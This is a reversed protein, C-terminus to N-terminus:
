NKAALSPRSKKRLLRHLLQTYIPPNGFIQVVTTSTLCSVMLPFILLYNQTMEVILVIGTIPARVCASFLAGMGAVAFMGPHLSPDIWWSMLYSCALGLLTGLALLPAFIGGPIGTSYSLLTTIFRVGFLGILIILSPRMTLSQEIIDYGGEVTQPAFWALLGVLGSVAVAYFFRKKTSLRDVLALHRMLCINFLLGAFGVVIGLLFFLWLDSLRPEQFVSMLIAPQPGIMLHQVVTAAICCIAVMKFNTFSFNFANRMEEIVFIIGALPANFATSLGAAAGATIMTKRRTPQLKSWRGIMEGLDGGMQITPGERGVVMNASISLIGGIFKVPLVRKWLVPREHLLADEIEPIGSGSADSAIFRVMMWAAAVMVMSSFVSCFLGVDGLSHYLQLLFRGLSDAVWQFCSGIFGVMIGLLVVLAYLALIRKAM